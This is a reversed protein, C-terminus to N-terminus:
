LKISNTQCEAFSYIACRSNSFLSCNALTTLLRKFSPPKVILQLLFNLFLPLKTLAIYIRRLKNGASGEAGQNVRSFIASPNGDQNSGSILVDGDANIAVSGANGIVGNIEGDTGRVSAQIQGGEIQSLSGANITVQGGNGRAGSGVNSFINGGVIEVTDNIELDVNGANGQGFTSVSISSEGDAISLSDANITVTSRTGEEATANSDVNSFIDADNTLNVAGDINLTIDGANGQGFTSNSLFSGNDINIFGTANLNIDGAQADLSTSSSLIGARLSSDGLIEINNANVSISGGGESRVNVDAANSFSVNSRAVGEPFTLSSDSEITITGSESLGGLEVKGGRATVRGSEFSIDGGILSLNKGPAVELGVFEEADNQVFSSNVIQNPNDRFNLGIPANITLLPPNDFDTASFEGDEFLISDATTGLFSGGIDLRANNGFLIGAPNILFLNASGNARILGDINSINGGTVRSLINSIDTANNFFASGNTPVSFNGFSHFLNNGARDGQEITFNGSGDPNVTTNTTGDASIQALAPNSWLSNTLACFGLSFLLSCSKKM